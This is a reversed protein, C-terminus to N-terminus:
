GGTGTGTAPGTGFRRLRAADRVTLRRYGTALLGDARLIALARQASAVSVGILTALDTQTIPVDIVLGHPTHRGHDAALRDLVRALRVPAPAGTLGARFDNAQRLKAAVQRHVLEAVQPREKLYAAFAPGGVTLTSVQQVAAVTASRIGGDLAALEGVLDGAFRFALLASHGDYGIRLVKVYGRLLLHVATGAEGQRLLFEGPAFRRPSGIKFLDAADGPAFGALFTGAPWRSPVVSRVQLTV